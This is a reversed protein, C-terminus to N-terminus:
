REDWVYKSPLDKWHKDLKNKFQNTSKSCVVDDPLSNWTDVIRMSFSFKRIDRNARRKTLKYQNGRRNDIARPLHVSTDQDQLKNLIKYVEIMDGRKRRFVLTPLQLKKLREPYSFNKFGNICKTARRQVKEINNIDAISRPSWVSQGYELKSRVLAIYLPKFIEPTLNTFSRRILGMIKTAKVIIENIHTKFDLHSDFYVGLDKEHPSREFYKPSNNENMMFRFPVQPIINPKTIIVQVCKDPHFKLCWKNSWDQLKNLDQQIVNDVQTNAPYSRFLKTDDAFMYASSQLESPLDNIFLIFLMPGIVSGQPIGSIVQLKNSKIGELQVYQQRGTIFSKIWSIISPCIGYNQLKIILHSHPVTDFAKKIDMYIVEIIKGQDLDETWTDLIRLLQSITSRGHMFGYQKESILKNTSMYNMIHERIISELLKSIICTLSVPRYNTASKKQGKKYIPCISATKWEIPVEGSRISNTFLLYLPHCLLEATEKLIRPLIDDPGPAKNPKIKRLKKLISIESITIEEMKKETYPTSTQDLDNPDEKTQVSQFFNNLHEAKEFSNSYVQHVGDTTEELDPIAPKIKSKKNIYSWFLKPNDKVNAAITNETKNKEHKMMTKVKNRQKKYAVLKVPDRTEVFRTWTRHKKKIEQVLNHPLPTVWKKPKRKSKPICQDQASKLIGAIKQWQEEVTKNDLLNDWNIDLCKKIEEINAKHVQPRSQGSDKYDMYCQYDFILMSHDSLGLPSEHIIEDISYPENSIILDLLSPQDHGRKRTPATVFQQWYNDMLCNVFQDEESNPNNSAPSASLDWDINKYNFDGM